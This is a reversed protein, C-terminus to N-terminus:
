MGATNSRSASDIRSTEADNDAAEGERLALQQAAPARVQARFPFLLQALFGRPVPNGRIGTAAVPNDFPHRYTGFVLDWIPLGGFNSNQLEHEDSHHIYHVDITRVVYHVWRPFRQDVNSHALNSEFVNYMGLWALLSGPCGVILFPTVVILFNIFQEVFHVRVAKLMHVQRTDHHLAHFWFLRDVSHLLRHYAYGILDFLLLLILFQVL